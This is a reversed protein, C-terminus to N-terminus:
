KVKKLACDCCIIKDDWYDRLSTGNAWSFNNDFENSEEILDFEKRCEECTEFYVGDVEDEIAQVACEGCLNRRINSYSLRFTEMSFISEAEEKNYRQGCWECKPM